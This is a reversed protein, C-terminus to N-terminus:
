HENVAAGLKRLMIVRYGTQQLRCYAAGGPVMGPEIKDFAPCFAGTSKAWAEQSSTAAKTVEAFGGNKVEDLAKKLLAQWVSLEQAACKKWQAEDSNSGKAAKICPEAILGVCAAGSAESDDAATLCQEIKQTDASTKQAQAATAFLMVGALAIGVRRM